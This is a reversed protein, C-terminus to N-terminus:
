SSKKKDRFMVHAHSVTRVSQTTTPNIFFLFDKDPLERQIIRELEELSYDKRYWFVWHSIGKDLNYPFDNPLFKYEPGEIPRGESDQWGLSIQQIYVDMSGYEEKVKNTWNRYKEEEALTRRLLHVSDTEIRDKILEWTLLPRENPNSSPPHSDTPQSTTLM